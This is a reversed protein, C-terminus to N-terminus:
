PWPVSECVAQRVITVDGSPELSTRVASWVPSPMDFYARDASITVTAGDASFTADAPGVDQFVGAQDTVLVSAESVPPSGDDDWGRSVGLTAAGHDPDVIGARYLEFGGPTPGAMDAPVDFTALIMDGIVTLTVDAPTSPENVAGPEELADPYDFTVCTASGEALAVDDAIVDAPPDDNSAEDISTPSPSGAASTTTTVAENGSGNGCGAALVAISVIGALTSALHRPM